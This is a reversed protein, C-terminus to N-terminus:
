LFSQKIDGIKFPYEGIEKDKFYHKLTKEIVPFAMEDWPIEGQKFLRVESSEPTPGFNTDILKSRFMFYIQSVFELNFLRYPAIIEVEARTEELTERKAGDQVTEKNEMFGAPLTWKGRCPEIDRLCLLISGQYEPICGVVLKPNEYHVFGCASCVARLITDGAPMKKEMRGGCTSCYNITM